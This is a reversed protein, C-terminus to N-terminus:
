WCIMSIYRASSAIEANVKSYYASVASNHAIVASHELFAETTDRLGNLMATTTANLASLETNIESLQSYLMYQNNKIRELFGGIEDLRNIVINARLEAEYLNYCGSAGDLAECRGSLLYEYFSTIAALDRYKGFVIGVGYLQHKKAFLDALLEEATSIEKDLIIKLQVEPYDVNNQLQAIRDELSAQREELKKKFDELAATKATIEEDLARIEKERDEVAKKHLDEQQKKAAEVLAPYEALAKNYLMIESNYKQAKEENEATIKKKNFFNPTVYVPKTPKIPQIPFAVPPSYLRLLM